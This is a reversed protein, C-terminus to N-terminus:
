SKQDKNTPGPCTPGTDWRQGNGAMTEDLRQAIRTGAVVPTMRVFAFQHVPWLLRPFRTRL